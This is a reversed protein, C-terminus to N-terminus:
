VTALGMSFAVILALGFGVRHMAVAALLVVLAGPCPVIGGSVGLALLSGFRIGRDTLVSEYDHHHSHEHGHRHHGHGHAHPRQEPGGPGGISPPTHSASVPHPEPAEESAAREGWYQPAPPAQVAVEQSHHHHEHEHGHSHVHGGHS